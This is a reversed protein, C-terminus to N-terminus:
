SPSQGVLWNREGDFIGALVAGEWRGGKFPGRQDVHVVLVDYRDIM